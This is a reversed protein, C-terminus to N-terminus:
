NSSSFYRDLLTSDFRLYSTYTTFLEQPQFFGSTDLNTLIFPYKHLFSEYHNTLLTSKILAINSVGFGKLTGLPLWNNFDAPLTPATLTTSPPYVFTWTQTGAEGEWQVRAVAADAVTVPGSASFTLTSTTRDVVANSMTPMFQTLDIPAAPSATTFRSVRTTASGRDDSAQLEVYDYLANIDASALPSYWPMSNEIDLQVPSGAWEPFTNLNNGTCTGGDQAVYYTLPLDQGALSAFNTSFDPTQWESFPPLQVSVDTDPTFATQYFLAIQGTDNDVVAAMVAGYPQSQFEENLFTGTCDDALVVGSPGPLATDNFTDNALGTTAYYTPNLIGSPGTDPWLVTVENDTDPPTTAPEAPVDLTYLTDFGVIGLYSTLDQRITREAVNGVSSSSGVSVTGGGHLAHVDSGDLATHGVSTRGLSDQFAVPAGTVWSQNGDQHAVDVRVPEPFPKELVSAISVAQGGGDLTNFFPSTPDITRISSEETVANAYVDENWFVVGEPGPEYQAVGNTTVLETQNALIRDDPPTGMAYAIRM